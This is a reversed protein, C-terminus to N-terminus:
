KDICSGNSCAHCPNNIPQGAEERIQNCTSGVVPKLAADIRQSLGRMSGADAWDAQDECNEAVDDVAFKAKRLLGELVDAREDAATLLQQSARERREAAVCGEAATLFCQVASDYDPGLVVNIRGLAQGEVLGAKTVHYRKVESVTIEKGPWAQATSLNLSDAVTRRDNLLPIEHSAKDAALWRDSGINTIIVFFSGTSFATVISDGARRKHQHFSAIPAKILFQDSCPKLM